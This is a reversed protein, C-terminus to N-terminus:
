FLFEGAQGETFSASSGTSPNAAFEERAAGM